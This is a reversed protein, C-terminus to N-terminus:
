PTEDRQAEVPAFRAVLEDVRRQDDATFVFRDFFYLYLLVFYVPFPWLGYLMVATPIPFGLVIRPAPDGAYSAYALVLALWVLQHLVVGAILPTRVPGLGGPKRLGFAFCLAFFLLSAAGYAWGALLLVGTRTEGPGGHAMTEFTPHPAGTAAPHSPLLAAAFLIAAVGLVVALLAVAIRDAAREDGNAEPPHEM